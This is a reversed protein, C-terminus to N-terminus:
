QYSWYNTGCGTLELQGTRARCADPQGRRARVQQGVRHVVRQARPVHARVHRAPALGAHEVARLVVELLLQQAAGPGAVARADSRAGRIPEDVHPLDGGSADEVLQRTFRM